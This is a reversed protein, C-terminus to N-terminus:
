ASNGARRPACRVRRSFRSKVLERMQKRTVATIPDPSVLVGPQPVFGTSLITSLSGDQYSVPYFGLSMSEGGVGEKRLELAAHGPACKLPTRYPMTLISFLDGEEWVPVPRLRLAVSTTSMRHRSHRGPLTGARGRFRRSMRPVMRFAM